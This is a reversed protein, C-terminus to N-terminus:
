IKNQGYPNVSPVKGGGRVPRIVRNNFFDPVDNKPQMPKVTEVMIPQQMQQQKQQNMMEAYSVFKIAGTNTHIPVMYDSSPAYKNQLQNEMRKKEFVLKKELYSIKKRAEDLEM